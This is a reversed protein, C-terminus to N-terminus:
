NYYKKYIKNYAETGKIRSIWVNLSDLLVPSSKRVAWAELHTFGVFTSYDIEPSTKAINAAVKEDCVAFDIDGSAVMMALQESGYAPDEKIYITDGIEHALNQIRLIVPSKAPVYLTKKALDLHSRIPEINDNYKKKRQILVQRNQAIAETFNVSDRLESTVPINRAVIDYKGTRLGDMSKDISSELQIDIKLPINKQLLEILDHNFGAITDGLVFYGVSNYDTVVRLVGEHQIQPYDRFDNGTTNNRIFIWVIILIIVIIPVSLFAKNKM